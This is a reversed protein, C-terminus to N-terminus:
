WVIRVILFQLCGQFNKNLQSDVWRDEWFKVCSGNALMWQSRCEFWNDQEGKSSIRCLDKWWLSCM